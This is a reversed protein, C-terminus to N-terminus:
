DKADAGPVIISVLGKKALTQLFAFLSVEAEKRNMKYEATLRGIIQRVATERDCMDWVFTGVEDLDVKREGSSAKALRPFWRLLPSPPMPVGLSVQGEEGRIVRLSPNVAVSSDLMQERSITPPKKKRFMKGEPGKAAQGKRM